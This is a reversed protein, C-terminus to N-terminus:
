QRDPHNGPSRGEISKNSQLPSDEITRLRRCLEKILFVVRRCESERNWRRWSLVFKDLWKEFAISLDKAQMIIKKKDKLIHTSLLPYLATFLYQGQLAMRIDDMERIASDRVTHTLGDLRERCDELLRLEKLIQNDSLTKIESFDEREIWWVLERFTFVKSHGATYLIEAIENGANGYRYSCCAELIQLSNRRDKTNWAFASGITLAPLAAAYPVTHGYDGWHSILFGQSNLRGAHGAMNNINRFASEYDNILRNWGWVAPVLWNEQSAKSFLDRNDPDPNEAYDWDLLIVDEPLEHILERHNLLIDGFLMIRFGKSRPYEMIKLLFDLYCRGKGNKEVFERSADTGLDFTEDACINLKRSSFLPLFERHLKEVFEVTQPHTINLTHERQRSFFSFEQIGTTTKECLDRWSLSSLIMYLHGFSAICPVLEIGREISYQDLILIENPTLVDEGGQIESLFTFAFSHEIYLQLQNLKMLVCQDVLKKLTELKPIKGRTVDYIIGRNQISPEDTIRCCPIRNGGYGLLQKLTQVGFRLGQSIGSIKIRHATIELSYKQNELSHPDVSLEEEPCLIIGEDPLEDFVVRLAPKYGFKQYLFCILDDSLSPIYHGQERMWYVTTEPSLIHEGEMRKLEKPTQLLNDLADRTMQEEM